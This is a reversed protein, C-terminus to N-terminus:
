AQESRRKPQQVPQEHSRGLVEVGLTSPVACDRLALASM